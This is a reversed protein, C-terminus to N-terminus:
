FCRWTYLSARWDEIAGGRILEGGLIGFTTKSILVGRDAFSVRNEGSGAETQDQSLAANRTRDNGVETFRANDEWNKREKGKTWVNAKM